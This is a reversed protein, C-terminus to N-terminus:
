KGCAMRMGCAQAAEFFADVSQPHVTGYVSATTVGNRLCQQLYRDAVIRAYNKDAFKQEAPFTYRELWELLQEGFAGTVEMQPYHVHCDVFGPMILDRGCHQVRVGPHRAIVQPASGTEQILGHEILIAGDTEVHAAGPGDVFPDGSFALYQGRLIFKNM